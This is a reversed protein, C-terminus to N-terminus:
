GSSKHTFSIVKNRIIIVIWVSILFAIAILSMKSVWNGEPTLDMNKSYMGYFAWVLVSTFWFDQNLYIVLLTGCIGLVILAATWYEETFGFFKFNSDILLINLNALAAVCVWALYISFPITYVKSANDSQALRYYLVILLIWLAFILLFSSLIHVSQWAILWLINFVCSAFFLYGVDLVEKPTDIKTQRIHRIQDFAFFGLSIYIVSWIKFSFDAPTLLNPFMDSVDGPTKGFFPILVAAANIVILLCYAILNIYLLNRRM